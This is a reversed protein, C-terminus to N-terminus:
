CDERRNGRQRGGTGARLLRGSRRAAYRLLGAGTASCALDRAPLWGTSAASRALGGHPLWGASTASCALDCAPLWGAGAASRALDCAPLWGASTASCALDRAPLRGTGAPGAQRGAALRRTRRGALPAIGVSPEWWRDASDCCWRSEPM